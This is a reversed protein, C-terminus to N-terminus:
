FVSYKPVKELVKLGTLPGWFSTDLFLDVASTCHGKQKNIISYLVPLFVFFSFDSKLRKEFYLKLLYLYKYKNAWSFVQNM